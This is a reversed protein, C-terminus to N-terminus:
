SSTLIGSNGFQSGGVSSGVDIRYFLPASCAGSAEDWSVSTDMVSPTTIQAFCTSSCILAVLVIWFNKKM